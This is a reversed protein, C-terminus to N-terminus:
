RARRSAEGIGGAMKALCIRTSCNESWRSRYLRGPQGVSPSQPVAREAQHPRLYRGRRHGLVCPRPRRRRRHGHDRVAASHAIVAKESSDCTRGFHDDQQLRDRKLVHVPSKPPTATNAIARARLHALAPDVLQPQSVLAGVPTGKDAFSIFGRLHSPHLHPSLRFLPFHFFRDESM